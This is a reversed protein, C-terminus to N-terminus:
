PILQTVGEVFCLEQNTQQLFPQMIAACQNKPSSLHVRQGEQLLVLDKWAIM